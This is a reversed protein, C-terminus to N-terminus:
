VIAETEFLYSLTNLQCTSTEAQWQKNPAIPHPVAWKVVVLVLAVRRGARTKVATTAGSDTQVHRVDTVAPALTRLMVILVKTIKGTRVGTHASTLRIQAIVSNGQGLVCLKTEQMGTATPYM